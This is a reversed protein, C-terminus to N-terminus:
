AVSAHIQDVEAAIEALPTRPDLPVDVPLGAMEVDGFDDHRSALTVQLGSRPLLYPVIDGFTVM